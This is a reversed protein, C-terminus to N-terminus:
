KKHPVPFKGFGEPVRKGETGLQYRYDLCKQCADKSVTKNNDLYHISLMGLDETSKCNYCHEKKM